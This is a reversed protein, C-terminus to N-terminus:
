QNLVSKLRKREEVKQASVSGGLSALRLRSSRRDGLDPSSLGSLGWVFLGFGASMLGGILAVLSAWRPSVTPTRLQAFALLAVGVGQFISTIVALGRVDWLFTLANFLALDEGRVVAPAIFARQGDVVSGISGLLSGVFLLALSARVGAGTGFVGPSSSLVFFASAALAFGFAGLLHMEAWLPSAVMAEALAIGSLTAAEKPHWAFVVLIIITSVILLIAGVKTGTM